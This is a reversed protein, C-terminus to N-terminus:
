NFVPKKQTDVNVFRKIIEFCKIHKGKFTKEPSLVLRTLCCEGQLMYLAFVYDDEHDTVAHVTELKSIDKADDPSWFQM